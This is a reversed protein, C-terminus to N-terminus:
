KLAIFCTVSLLTLNYVRFGLDANRGVSLCASFLFIKNRQSPLFHIKLNTELKYNTSSIPCPHCVMQISNKTLSITHFDHGERSVALAPPVLVCM